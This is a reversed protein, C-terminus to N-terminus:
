AVSAARRAELAEEVITELLEIRVNLKARRRDDPDTRADAGLRCRVDSRDDSATDIYFDGNKAEPHANPDDTGSLITHGDAGPQGTNGTDGKDGKDGKPGVLSMPSGWGANTKPGYLEEYATDLYFDGNAGQDSTPAGTGNLVTKGDAGPQGAVGARDSRRPEVTPGGCVGPFRDGHPEGPRAARGEPPRRRHLARGRRARRWEPKLGPQHADPGLAWM